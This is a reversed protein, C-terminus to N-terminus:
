LGHVCSFLRLSIRMFLPFERFETVDVNLAGQKLLVFYAPPTPFNLPIRGCSLLVRKLDSSRVM